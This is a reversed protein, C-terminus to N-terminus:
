ILRRLPPGIAQEYQGQEYLQVVQRGLQAATSSSTAFFLKQGRELLQEAQRKRWWKM